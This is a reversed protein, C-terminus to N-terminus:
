FGHDPLYWAYRSLRSMKMTELVDPPLTWCTSGEVVNIFYSNCGWAGPAAAEDMYYGVGRPGNKFTYGAKSETFAAAAIFTAPIINQQGGEWGAPLNNWVVFQESPAVIQHEQQASGTMSLMTYYMRYRNQIYGGSVFRGLLM